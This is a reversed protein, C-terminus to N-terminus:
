LKVTLIMSNSVTPNMVIGDMIIMTVDAYDVDISDDNLNADVNLGEARVRAAYQQEATEQASVEAYEEVLAPVAANEDAGIIAAPDENGMFDATAKYPQTCQSCSHNKALEIKGADGLKSFAQEAVEKITLREPLELNLRKSSAVSRVSEQIFAQWILRRTIQLKTDTISNCDNWFQTYAAASGHFNYMGSLVSHSIKRDVWTSQGVKLFRASNLYCRNWAGHEDQFCEHDAYYSTNCKSCQGMLVPVDQYITDEKIV